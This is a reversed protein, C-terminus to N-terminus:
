SRRYYERAYPRGRGGGRGNYGGRGSGRGRSGGRFNGRGRNAHQASGDDNNGGNTPFLLHDHPLESLQAPPGWWGPSAVSHASANKAAYPCLFTPHQASKCLMCESPKGSSRPRFGYEGASFQLRRMVKSVREQLEGELPDMFFVVVPTTSPHHVLRAHVTNVVDFVRKPGLGGKAQTAQDLERYTDTDTFAARVFGARAWAEVDEPDDPSGILDHHGIVWEADNPEYRQVWFGLATHVGYTGQALIARAGEDSEALVSVSIPGGYKDNGVNEGDISAPVPFKIELNETPARVRLAVRLQDLLPTDYTTNRVHNGGNALVAILHNGGKGLFSQTYSTAWFRTARATPVYHRPISPDLQQYPPNGAEDAPPPDQPTVTQFYPNRAM